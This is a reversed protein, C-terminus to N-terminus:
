CILLLTFMKHRYSTKKFLTIRDITGYFSSLESPTFGIDINGATDGYYTYCYVSYYYGIFFRIGPIYDRKGYAKFSHVNDNADLDHIIGNDFAFKANGGPMINKYNADRFLEVECNGIVEISSVCDNGIYTSNLNYHSSFFVQSRAPRDGYEGQRNSQFLVVGRSTINYVKISSATDNFGISSLNACSSTFTKSSGRFQSDKYLTCSAEGIIKVSSVEDNGVYNGSYLQWGDFNPDNAIFVESKGKYNAHEYLIVRSGKYANRIKISSLEDNLGNLDPVEMVDNDAKSIDSDEVGDNVQTERTPLGNFECSTIFLIILSVILIMSIQKM